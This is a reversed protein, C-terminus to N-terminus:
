EEPQIDHKKEEVESEQMKHIIFSKVVCVYDFLEGLPCDSDLIVLCKDFKELKLEVKPILKM